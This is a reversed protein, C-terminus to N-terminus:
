DPFDSFRAQIHDKLKFFFRFFTFEVQLVLFQFPCTTSNLIIKVGLNEFLKIKKKNFIGGDVWEYIDLDKEIVRKGIRQYMKKNKLIITKSKIKCNIKNGEMSIVKNNDMFRIIIKEGWTFETELEKYCEEVDGTRIKVNVIEVCEPIVHGLLKISNSFWVCKDPNLKM